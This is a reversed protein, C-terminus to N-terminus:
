GASVSLSDARCVLSLSITLRVTGSGHKEDLGEEMATIEDQGQQGSASSTTAELLVAVRDPESNRVRTGTANCLHSLELADLAARVAKPSFGADRAFQHLWVEAGADTDALAQLVALKCQRAQAAFARRAYIFSSFAPAQM